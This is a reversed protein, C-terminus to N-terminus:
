LWMGHTDWLCIAGPTWKPPLSASSFARPAESLSLLHLTGWTVKERNHLCFILLWSWLTLTSTVCEDWMKEYCQFSVQHLSSLSQSDVLLFHKKKHLHLIYWIRPTIKKLCWEPSSSSLVTGHFTWCLLHFQFRWFSKTTMCVDLRGEM